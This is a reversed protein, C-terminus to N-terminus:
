GEGVALRSEVDVVGEVNRAAAVARDIQNQDPVMGSLIVRGANTEVSIDTGNVNEAALLAAKVKASITADDIQQGVTPEARSPDAPRQSSTLGSPSQDCAALGLCGLMTVVLIQTRM